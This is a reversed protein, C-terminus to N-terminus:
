EILRISEISSIKTKKFLFERFKNDIKIGRRQLNTKLIAYLKKGAQDLDTLIIVEKHDIKEISIHSSNSFTIINYIGLDELAKKDKKGEVIILKNCNKLKETWEELTEM